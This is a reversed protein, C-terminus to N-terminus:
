LQRCSFTFLSVFHWLYLPEWSCIAHLYLESTHLLTLDFYHPVCPIFYLGHLLLLLSWLNSDRYGSSLFFFPCVSVYWFFIKQHCYRSLAPLILFQTTPIYLTFYYFPIRIFFQVMHFKFQLIRNHWCIFIIFIV